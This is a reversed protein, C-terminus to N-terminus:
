LITEGTLAKAFEEGIAEDSWPMDQKFLMFYGTLKSYYSHAPIKEQENLYCNACFVPLTLKNWGVAQLYHHDGIINVLYEPFNWRTALMRGVTQHETGFVVLEAMYSPKQEELMIQRAKEYKEPFFFSLAQGGVDHLLGGVWVKSYDEKPAKAARCIFEALQACRKGHAIVEKQAAFLGMVSNYFNFLFIPRLNAFGITVLAKSLLDVKQGRYYFSSNALRIIQSVLGPNNRVMKELEEFNANVDNMYSVLQYADTSLIPVDRLKSMLHNVTEEGAISLQASKQSPFTQIGFRLCIKSIEAMKCVVKIRCRASVDVIHQYFSEDAEALESLDVLARTQAKSLGSLARFVDIDEKQVLGSVILQTLGGDLTEMRFSAM